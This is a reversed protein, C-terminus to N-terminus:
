RRNNEKTPRIGDWAKIQDTKFKNSKEMGKCVCVCVCVFIYTYIYIYYIEAFM